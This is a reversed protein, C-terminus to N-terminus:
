NCLIDIEVYQQKLINHKKKFITNYWKLKATEVHSRKGKVDSCQM